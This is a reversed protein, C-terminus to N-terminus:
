PAADVDMMRKQGAELARPRIMLRMRAADLQDAGGRVVDGAVEIFARDDILIDLADAMAIRRVIKDALAAVDFAPHQRPRDPTMQLSRIIRFPRLVM